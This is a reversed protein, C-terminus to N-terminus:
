PQRSSRRSCRRRGPITSRAWGSSRRRACNPDPDKKAIELLKDSRRHRGPGNRLDLARAVGAGRVHQLAHRPGREHGREPRGLLAGAEEDGPRRKTPPRRRAALRSEGEYWDALDLCSSRRLEEGKLKPYLSRLFAEDAKSGSQGIWFIAKERIADSIDSRSAYAHLAAQARESGHQSLAFVAKDQRRPGQHLPPHLRACGSGRRHRGALALVGGPGAGRCRSRQARHEAASRRQGGCRAPRGPVRGKEPPLGVRSRATRAGPPAGADGAGRGDPAARQAGRGAHRGRRRRLRKRAVATGSPSAAGSARPPRPRPRRQLHRPLGWWIQTSPERISEAMPDGRRALEGQIRRELAAADGRTAAKAYRTRQTALLKLAQRLQEDNGLRYLAFAQWYLADGAYGSKPHKAPSAPRLPRRRPSLAGTRCRRARRATCRTPRIM